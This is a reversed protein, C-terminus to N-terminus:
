SLRLRKSGPLKKWDEEVRQRVSVRMASIVKDRVAQDDAVKWGTPCRQLFRGGEDKIRQVIEMTIITKELKEELARYRNTYEAVLAALRLNGQVGKGRHGRGLLVDLPGPYLIIGTKLYQEEEKWKLEGEIRRREEM